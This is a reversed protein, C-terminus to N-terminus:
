YSDLDNSGDGLVSNRGGFAADATILAPQNAGTAQTANGGATSQDVWNSVGTAVTIGLDAILFFFASRTKVIALPDLPNVPRNAVAGTVAVPVHATANRKHKRVFSRASSPTELSIM